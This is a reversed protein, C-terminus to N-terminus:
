PRRDTDRRASSHPLVVQGCRRRSSRQRELTGETVRDALCTSCPQIQPAFRTNKSVEADVAVWAEEAAIRQYQGLIVTKGVGRLGTIVLSQETYGRGLRRLLTRFDDVETRRGALYRPPAGANPTYPNAARDM